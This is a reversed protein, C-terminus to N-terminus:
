RGFPLYEMMLDFFDVFYRVIGDDSVEEVRLIEAMNQTSSGIYTIQGRAIDVMGLEERAYREVAATGFVTEHAIRLHIAEEQLDAMQRELGVMESSIVALQMHSLVVMLALIGVLLAGLVAFKSVTQRQVRAQSRTRTNADADEGEYPAVYAGSREYQGSNDYIEPLASLRELRELEYASTGATAAHYGAM